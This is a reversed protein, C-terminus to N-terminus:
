QLAFVVFINNSDDKKLQKIFDAVLGVDTKPILM